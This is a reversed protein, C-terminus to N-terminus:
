QMEMTEISRKLKSRVAVDVKSLAEDVSHVQQDIPSYEGFYSCSCGSDSALFLARDSKRRLLATVSWEYGSGTDVYGIVDYEIGEINMDFNPIM